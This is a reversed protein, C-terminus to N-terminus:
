HYSWCQYWYALRAV